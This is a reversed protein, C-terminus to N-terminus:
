YEVNRCSEIISRIGRKVVPTKTASRTTIQFIIKPDNRIRRLDSTIFVNRNTIFRLVALVAIPINVLWLFTLLGALITEQLNQM